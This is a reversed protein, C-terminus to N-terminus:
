KAYNEKRKNIALVAMTLAAFFWYVENPKVALFAEAAISLFLMILTAVLLGASLGVSFGDQSKSYGQWSKKIIVFILILFILLGIIGTEIFNHLYQNHAEGVYGKGLGLLFLLLPGRLAQEFTPKIAPEIRGIKFAQLVKTPTSIDLIRVMIPMSKFSFIFIGVIFILIICSILVIKFSKKRLFLLFLSLFLALLIGLFNTKSASSFVGIIPSIILLSLIAKKFKSIELSFFHYLLINFLFIFIMLFFAGSPFVGWEAIAAAWYEGLSIGTLLQYVVYATNVLGLIIWIKVLFKASDFSKIHYFLYFYLFFFEFEKLFYFFGRPLGINGFIWNTLLSIFGIGLWALIPFFLPPKKVTKKGSILANLFWFLGLVVILIDEIRIEIIKDLGKMTGMSFSPSLGIAGALLILSLNKFFFKM